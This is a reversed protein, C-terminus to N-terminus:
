HQKLEDLYDIAKKLADMDNSKRFNADGLIERFKEAVEKKRDSSLEAVKGQIEEILESLSKHEGLSKNAQSSTKAQEIKATEIAETDNSYLELITKNFECLFTQVDLDIETPFNRFRTGCLINGDSRFRLKRREIPKGDKGKEVFLDGYIIMDAECAIIDSTKTQM